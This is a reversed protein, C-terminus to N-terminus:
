GYSRAGREGQAPGLRACVLTGMDRRSSVGWRRDTLADAPALGRGGVDDGAPRQLLPVGDSADLEWEKLTVRLEHRAQAVTRPSRPRRKVIAAPDCVEETAPPAGM